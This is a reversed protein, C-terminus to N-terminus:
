TLKKAVMDMGFCGGGNGTYWFYLVSDHVAAFISSPTLAQWDENSFLAQTVVEVGSNSAFCYGDPSAYFVGGMASVMSKASVCSQSQNLKIASMNAPDVGSIIYPVAKTGVLLSQGFACLGVIPYEIPIQYEVPWAYPSYPECFAVFNDVFGAMIGNPMGTLGRMYPKDGKTDPIRPLPDVTADFRYPPPTWTITPCVEALMSGSKGDVFSSPSASTYSSVDPVNQMVWASGNWTKRCWYDSSLPVDTPSKGPPNSLLVRDGVRLKDTSRFMGPDTDTSGRGNNDTSATYVIWQAVVDRWKKPDGFGKLTSPGLSGYGIYPVNSNQGSYKVEAVFQFEAASTGTNSRYLRWKTINRLGYAMRGIGSVVSSNLTGIDPAKVVVLDNYVVEIVDSPESPASEEGWETVYTTIYSRTDVTSTDDVLCLGNINDDTKEIPLNGIWEAFLSELKDKMGFYFATLESSISDCDDMASRMEAVASAQKSKWATMEATFMADTQTTKVPKATSLSTYAATYFRYMAADLASRRTKVEAWTDPNFWAAFTDAIINVQQKEWLKAVVGDYDPRTIEEYIRKDFAGTQSFGTGRHFIGWLPNANVGIWWNKYVVGTITQEIYVSGLIPNGIGEPHVNTVPICFMINWPEFVGRQSVALPKEYDVTPWYMVRADNYLTTIGARSHGRAPDFQGNGDRKPQSDWYYRGPAQSVPGFSINDQLCEKAIKAVAPVLVSDRWEKAQKYTFKTTTLQEIEPKPPRPVGLVYTENKNNFVMPPEAGDDRTYYTRETIDDAVQGKVYNVDVMDARWGDNTSTHLEGTSKRQTRYITKPNVPETGTTTDLVVGPALVPRFEQATALLNLNLQAAGAPLNRPPVRPLEGGFDTINIVAM